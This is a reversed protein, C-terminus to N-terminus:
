PQSVAHQAARPKEPLLDVGPVPHARADQLILDAARWAAAMVPGNTNGSPMTPFVSADVVRLNTVGRVRLREDVVALPDAAPGMKCTGVGHYGAQGNRRFFDLIEDDTNVQAGPRTEEAVWARLQPQSVLQRQKRFGAVTVARDYEASLINPRIVPPDSAESSRLAV